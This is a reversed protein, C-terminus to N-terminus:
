GHTSDKLAQRGAHTLKRGDLGRPTSQGERVSAEAEEIWADPVRCGYKGGESHYEIHELVKRRLDTMKEGM